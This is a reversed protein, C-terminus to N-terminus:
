LRKPILTMLSIQIQRYNLIIILAKINKRIEEEKEAKRKRYEYGSPKPKKKSNESEM